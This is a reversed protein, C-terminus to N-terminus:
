YRGITDRNAKNAANTIWAHFRTGQFIKNILASNKLLEDNNIKMLRHWLSDESM